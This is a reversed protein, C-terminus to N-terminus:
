HYRLQDYVSMMSPLCQFTGPAGQVFKIDFSDICGDPEMLVQQILRIENRAVYRGIPYFVFKHPFSWSHRAFYFQNIDSQSVCVLRQPSSAHCSCHHSFNCRQQIPSAKFCNVQHTTGYKIYTNTVQSFIGPLSHSDQAAPYLFSRENDMCATLAQKRKFKKSIVDDLQRGFSKCCISDPIVCWVVRDVVYSIQFNRNPGCFSVTNVCNATKDKCM